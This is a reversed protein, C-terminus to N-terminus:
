INISFRLPSNGYGQGRYKKAILLRCIKVAKSSVELECHGIINKTEVNSVKFVVIENSEALEFYNKLQSEKLPFTFTNTAWVINLRPTDIWTILRKLDEDIKFTLLEIM